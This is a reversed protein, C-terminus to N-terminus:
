LLGDKTLIQWRRAEKANLERQQKEAEKIMLTKALCENFRAKQEAATM